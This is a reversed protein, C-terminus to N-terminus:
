KNLALVFQLLSQKDFRPSFGSETAVPDSKVKCADCVVSYAYENTDVEEAQVRFVKDNGCASCRVLGKERIRIRESLM